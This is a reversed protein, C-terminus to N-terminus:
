EERQREPSPAVGVRVMAPRLLKGRFTYGKQLEALVTHDEVETSERMEIAHHINPDFKQGEAPIPELGLKQLESSFRQLILEVGQAFHADATETQLAREFDDLMPLLKGLTEMTAYDWVDAKEREARKRFNDFEAMRRLLRDKLEANEAALKDREAEVSALPAAADDSVAEAAEGKRQEAPEEPAKAPSKRDNLGM